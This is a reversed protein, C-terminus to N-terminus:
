EAVVCEVAGHTAAGRHADITRGGRKRLRRTDVGSRGVHGLSRRGAPRDRNGVGVRAVVSRELRPGTRSSRRCRRSRPRASRPADTTPSSRRSCRACSPTRRWGAASCSWRMNDPPRQRHRAARSRDSRRRAARVSRRRKAVQVAAMRVGVDGDKTLPGAIFADVAPDDMLRTAEIAALRLSADPSSAFPRVAPLAGTYASNAIGRLCRIQDDSQKAARLLAVLRESIARSRAADGAERLRRAATGLGFVAHERLLPDAILQQLTDIMQPAPSPVRILSNAAAIRADADLKTDLVLDALAKQAPESGASALADMIPAAAVSGARAKAAAKKVAEPELRLLAVLASFTAVHERLQGERDAGPTAKKEGAAPKGKGSPRTEAELAAALQEFTRGDLRARDFMGKSAGNGYAQAARLATTAAILADRGPAGPRPATIEKLDIALKTEVALPSKTLVQSTITDASRIAALAGDRVRMEGSSAAVQAAVRARTAADVPGAVLVEAYKLKRKNVAGPEAGWAYAADYGGTADYERATWGAGGQADAAPAALQFAAALTRFMGAAAAPLGPPFRQEVVKGGDLTFLFRQAFAAALPDGGPVARGGISLRPDVLTVALEARAGSVRVPVLELATTLELDFPSQGGLGAHSALTATYVYRANERWGIEIARKRADNRGCGIVALVALAAILRRPRSDVKTRAREVQKM